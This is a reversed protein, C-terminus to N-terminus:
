LLHVLHVQPQFHGPLLLVQDKEQDFVSPVEVLALLLGATQFGESVEDYVYAWCRTHKVNCKHTM